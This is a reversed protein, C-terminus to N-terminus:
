GRAARRRDALLALPWAALLGAASAFLDAFWDAWEADRHIFPVAQSAEILVGFSALLLLVLSIRARPYALRALVAILGFAAVHDLKDSYGLHPAEPQPLVAAVYATAVALWLLAVALRRLPSM